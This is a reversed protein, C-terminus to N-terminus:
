AEGRKIKEEIHRWVDDAPDVVPEQMAIKITEVMYELDRLLAPCRPCTKMHEYTQLDESAGIREAMLSQFQACEQDQLDQARLEIDHQEM